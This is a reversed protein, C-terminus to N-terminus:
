SPKGHREWSDRLVPRLMEPVTLLQPKGGKALRSGKKRPAYGWEFAGAAVDFAEWKVAHLDSTRHLAHSM